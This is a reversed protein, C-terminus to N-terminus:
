TVSYDGALVSSYGLNYDISDKRERAIPRFVDRSRIDGAKIASFIGWNEFSRSSRLLNSPYYVRYYGNPAFIYLCYGGNQRSFILRKSVSRSPRVPFYQGSNTASLYWM